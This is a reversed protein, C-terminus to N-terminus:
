IEVGEVDDPVAVWFSYICHGRFITMVVRAAYLIWHKAASNENYRQIMGNRCRLSDLVPPVPYM